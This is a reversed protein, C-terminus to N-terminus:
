TSSCAKQYADAFEEFYYAMSKNLCYRKSLLSNEPICSAWQVAKTKFECYLIDSVFIILFLVILSLAAMVDVTPIYLGARTLAEPFITDM